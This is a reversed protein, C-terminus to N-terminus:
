AVTVLIGMGGAQSEGWCEKLIQGKIQLSFM